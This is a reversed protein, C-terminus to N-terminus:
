PSLVRFEVRRNRERGAESENDGIPHYEGYGEAVLRSVPVGNKWLFDRVAWARRRSLDLNYAEPGLSDTHGAIEVRMTPQGNIGLVVQKLLARANSTLVASDFEFAVNELIVSQSRLACGDDGVVLRWVTDPCRDSDDRVGDADADNDVSCGRLNVHSGPFTNPCEDQAEPVGDQDPDLPCGALGVQMGRSTDPCRDDRDLIGDGDSDIACGDSGIRTDPASAPCVDAYNPVGDGDADGFSGGGTEAPGFRFRLGLLATWHDDKDSSALDLAYRLDARLDWHTSLRHLLGGGVATAFADSSQDRVEVRAAGLGASFYPRMGPSAGFPFWLASVDFGSRRWDVTSDTRAHRAAFELSWQENFDRGLSLAAAGGQDGDATAAGLMPSLWWAAEGSGDGPAAFASSALLGSILLCVARLM